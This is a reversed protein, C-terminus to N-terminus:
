GLGVGGEVELAGWGGEGGWGGIGTEGVEVMLALVVRGRCPGCGGLPLVVLSLVALWSDVPGGPAGLGGGLWGGVFESGLWLDLWWRSRVM